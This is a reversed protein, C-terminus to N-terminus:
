SMSQISLLTEVEEYCLFQAQWLLWGMELACCQWHSVLSQVVPPPLSSPAPFSARTKSASGTQFLLQIDSNVVVEDKLFFLNSLMQLVLLIKLTFNCFKAASRSVSFHFTAILKLQCCCLFKSLLKQKNKAINRQLNMLFCQLNIPCVM